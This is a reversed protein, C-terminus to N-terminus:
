LSSALKKRAESLKTPSRRPLAAYVNIVEDEDSLQNGV